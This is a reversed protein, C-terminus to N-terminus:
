FKNNRNIVDVLYNIGMVFLGGIFFLFPKLYSPKKPIDSPEYSKAETPRNTTILFSAVWETRNIKNKGLKHVTKKSEVIEYEGENVERLMANHGSKRQSELFSRAIKRPEGYIETIIEHDELNVIFCTPMYTM